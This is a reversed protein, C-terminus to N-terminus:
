KKLPKPVSGSIPNTLVFRILCLIKQSKVFFQSASIRKSSLFIEVIQSAEKVKTKLSMNQLDSACSHAKSCNKDNNSSNANFTQFIPRCDGM